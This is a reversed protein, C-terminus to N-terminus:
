LESSLAQTIPNCLWRLVRFGLQLVRRRRAFRGRHRVVRRRLRPVGCCRRGLRNHSLFLFWLGSCRLRPLFIHNLIKAWIVHLQSPRDFLRPSTNSQSLYSLSLLLCTAHSVARCSANVSQPLACPRASVEGPEGVRRAPTRALVATAYEPHALVGEALPTRIYWPAVANVRVGAPAWECATYRTFQNM